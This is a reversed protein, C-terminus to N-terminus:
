HKKILVSNIVKGVINYGENPKVPKYQTNDSVLYQENYKEKYRKVMSDGYEDTVIVVNGSELTFDLTFIVHEGARISPEMSDGIVKMAYYHEPMGPVQITYETEWENVEPIGAPVNGVVPISTPTSLAASGPPPIYPLTTNAKKKKDDLMREINLQRRYADTMGNNILGHNPYPDGKGDLLWILECGFFECLKLITLRRPQKIKGSLWKSIRSEDTNLARALERQQIKEHDILYQLRDKFYEM